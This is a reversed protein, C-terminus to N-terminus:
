APQLSRELRDALQRMGLRRAAAAGAARDTARSPVPAVPVRRLTAIDKFVALLDRQDRLARCARSSERLCSDVAAELSGHRRLLDAATKEGVGKAGPIGDSPDGRLAIFDPVLEPPIGYRRRVEDPGVEEPGTGRKGTAATKVYLITIRDSALQYLDRDGTLVLARGGADVEALAHSALLDDAELEPHDSTEWGFAAFLDPAAAFQEALGEPMEPRQSHYAPYDRVRYTASEQGLCMVVARPEHREVVNLMYNVTGLLAGVPRDDTGTITKPLAFYARYLLSPADVALLPAPM